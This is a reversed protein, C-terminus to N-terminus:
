CSWLLSIVAVYHTCCCILSIAAVDHTCCCILTPFLLPRRSCPFWQHMYMYMTILHDPSSLLAHFLNSSDLSAMVHDLHMYQLCLVNTRLIQLLFQHVLRCGYWYVQAILSQVVGALSSVFLSIIRCVKRLRCFPLKIGLPICASM